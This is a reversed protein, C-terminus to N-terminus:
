YDPIRVQEKSAQQLKNQSDIQQSKAHEKKSHEKQEQSKTNKQEKDVFGDLKEMIRQALTSQDTENNEITNAFYQERFERCYAYYYHAPGKQRLFEIIKLGDKTQYIKIRIQMHNGDFFEDM